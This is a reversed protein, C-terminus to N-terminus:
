GDHREEPCGEVIRVYYSDMNLNIYAGMEVRDARSASMPGMRKVVEGSEFNVIEVYSISLPKEGNTNM